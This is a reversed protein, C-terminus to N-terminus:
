SFEELYQPQNTSPRREGIGHLRPLLPLALQMQCARLTNEMLVAITVPGVGGPVPTVAGAVGSVEEFACDGVLTSRSGGGGGGAIGPQLVRNIGIDIVTAGPRVWDGRVLGPCGTATVLIDAERCRGRMVAQEDLRSGNYVTCHEQLLLHALPRGVINSRGLVAARRGSLDAGLEEKLMLLAALPTCPALPTNGGGLMVMRGFSEHTLGDVDKQPSIANIVPQPDLNPPLPLQFRAVLLVRIFVFFTM